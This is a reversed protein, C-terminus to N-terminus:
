ASPFDFSSGGFDSSYCIIGLNKIIQKKMKPTYMTIDLYM